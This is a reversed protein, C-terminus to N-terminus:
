TTHTQELSPSLNAYLAGTLYAFLHGETFDLLLSNVMCGAAMTVVVGQAMLVQRDPLRYSLRWMRYLLYIFLGMGVLGWQVAIMLYENHPNKSYEDHHNKMDQPKLLQQYEHAFSGTGAGLIPNNAVLVLSNKLFTFRYAISTTIDGQRYNQMDTSIEHIRKQVATSTSYALLGLMVLVLMGLLLGRTRYTQYFFLLILCALVLYGSRGHTMFVINYVALAVGIACVWRWRPHRLCHIALFYAALAMLLGQTIHTKFVHPNSASGKGVEWGTLAMLYSLLLTVGMTTMFGLIGLKSDGNRFLVIFLPIYLLVRYKSLMDGAEYMPVPTYTIGLVLLGFLAIVLTVIPNVCVAKLNQKGNGEVFLLILAIAILINTSSTAIPISMGILIALSCRILDLRVPLTSIM